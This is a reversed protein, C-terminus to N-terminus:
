KKVWQDFWRVAQYFASEKAFKQKADKLDVRVGFGHQTGGYVTVQYPIGL